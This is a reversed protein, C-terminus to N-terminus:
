GSLVALWLIGVAAATGAVKVDTTVLSTEPALDSTILEFCDKCTQTKSSGHSLSSNASAGAGEVAFTLEMEPVKIPTLGQPDSMVANAMMGGMEMGERSKWLVEDMTEALRTFGSKQVCWAMSTGWGGPVEGNM